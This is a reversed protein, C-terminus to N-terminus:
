APEVTAQPRRRTRGIWAFVALSLALLVLSVIRWRGADAAYRWADRAAQAADHAGGANGAEFALRAAGLQLDPGQFLLGLGIVLGDVFGPDAPRAGEAAAIMEIASYEAAAEAAAASLGDPAEFAARLADPLKVRTAAAAAALTQREDLIAKAAAIQDLAVDFRWSRMADRISVPLQWDGAARVGQAYATRASSRADLAALDEPRAVWTRWLDGFDLGTQEELLDLLGRWDPAVAVPENASPEPHYAGTGRAAQAWVARLNDPGARAAIEDALELAAAYAYLESEATETASSGWANLPIAGAGPEVPDHPRIELGLERTALDGYYSAFAEAAWRDAVLRGNFWAHALEHIVVADSATYSIDIRRDAPDFVGAYGGSGRVLVENVQLPGDVPWAVGIERELIPLAHAVLNTVRSAWAPDDPWARVVVPVSAASLPVEVQTEAPTEVQRDAVVDAVFDLPAALRGSTWQEEGAAGVAPGALPGRGITVRYGGPMQVAVTSGPTSPTAFAWAGFTVLSPSVRVPRGADGGTDRIDFSLTLKLTRGAALNTGFDLKLSTYRDTVKHIAVKPMGSGGSLAFGSTGPQVTLYATRYSFQRTVTNRLHNTASLHVTVAVRGEDPRVDYLADGIVTLSPTAADTTAPALGPVLGLAGALMFAVGLVAGGARAAGHAGSTRAAQAAGPRLATM